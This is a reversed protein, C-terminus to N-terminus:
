KKITTLSMSDYWGDEAQYIDSFPFKSDDKNLIWGIMDTKKGKSAGLSMLNTTNMCNLVEERFTLDKAYKDEVMKQITDMELRIFLKNAKFMSVSCRYQFWDKTIADIIEKSTKHKVKSGESYESGLITSTKSDEVLWKYTRPIDEGCALPDIADYVENVLKQITFFFKKTQAYYKPRKKKVQVVEEGKKNKVKKKKLLKSDMIDGNWYDYTSVTKVPNKYSVMKSLPISKVDFKQHTNWNISIDSKLEELKKTLEPYKNSFCHFLFSPSIDQSVNFLDLSKNMEGKYTKSYSDLEEQSFLQTTESAPFVTDKLYRYIRGMRWSSIKRNEDYSEKLAEIQLSQDYLSINAIYEKIDDQDEIEEWDVQKLIKPHINGCQILMEVQPVSKGYMSAIEKISKRNKTLDQMMKIEDLFTMNVRQVNLSHQLVETQGNPAEIYNVPIADLKLEKAIKLRQHGDIVVFQKNNDKDACITIAQGIGLTKISEKL